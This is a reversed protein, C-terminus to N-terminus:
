GDEMAAPRGAAVGVRLALSAALRESTTGEAVGRRAGLSALRVGPSLVLPDGVRDADVARDLRLRIGVLAIVDGTIATSQDDVHERRRRRTAGAALPVKPGAWSM